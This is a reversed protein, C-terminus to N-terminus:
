KFAEMDWFKYWESKLEIKDKILHLPGNNNEDYKDRKFRYTGNYESLYKCAESEEIGYIVLESGEIKYKGSFSCATYGRNSGSSVKLSGDLTLDSHFRIHACFPMEIALGKGELYSQEELSERALLAKGDCTHWNVKDFTLEEVKIDTSPKMLLYVIPLIIITPMVLWLIKKSKSM